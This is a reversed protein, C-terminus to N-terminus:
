NNKKTNLDVNATPTVNTNSPNNTTVTITTTTGEGNKVTARVSNCSIAMVCLVFVFTIKATTAKYKQWAKTIEECLKKIAKQWKKYNNAFKILKKM